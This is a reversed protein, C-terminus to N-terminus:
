SRKAVCFGFGGSAMQFVCERGPEHCDDTGAECLEFDGNQRCTSRTKSSDDPVCLEDGPCNQREFDCSQHLVVCKGTDPDGKPDAVVCVLGDRCTRTAKTGLALDCFQNKGRLKQCLQADNCFSGAPCGIRPDSANQTCPIHRLIADTRDAAEQQSGPDSQTGPESSSCSTLVILSFLINSTRM